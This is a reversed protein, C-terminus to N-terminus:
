IYSVLKFVIWILAAIWALTTVIAVSLITREAICFRRSKSKMAAAGESQGGFLCSFGDTHRPVAETL